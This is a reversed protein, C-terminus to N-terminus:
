GGCITENKPAVLTTLYDDVANDVCDNVGYGTHQDATVVVLRGDALAQALHRTSALPTAPDGTTGVVVIPPAGTTDVKVAPARPVPWAACFQLELIWGAGLRPAVTAFQDQMDWLVQPDKTGPDDLCNIAFYAELANDYTGDAHRQYYDDYLALIGNGDGHQLDALAQELQPWYSQLYMADSVATTLVGQTIPPRGETTSVPSADAAASLADYEGAADGGNHFPCTADKSCAALFTDFTSEFGAAQELNQQLYGETDDAAGDIVMARVTQPYASAWTVGLESGYSFGFYSIKQEGLAQRISDMDRASDATSVFPLFAGDKAECDAGFTKAADLIAHREADTDPSSDIAFFQDYTTVCDVAPTSEGTGRPDWGIIDFDALLSSGYIGDASAAFDSGGSGPGGPNVLLSGIRHAADTAPHRVVYLTFSGASPDTYDIPVKLHGHQVGDAVADWGFPDASSPPGVPATSGTDTSGTDTSETETSSDNTISSDSTVSSDSTISSDSPVTDEFGNGPGTGIDAISTASQSSTIRQVGASGSNTCASMILMMPVAVGVIFSLRRPMADDYAASSM